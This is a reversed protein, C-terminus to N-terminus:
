AAVFTTGNYKWYRVAGSGGFLTIARVEKLNRPTSSGSSVPPWVFINVSIPTGANNVVSGDRQFRAVWISHGTVTTTGNLHGIADTAFAINAYNPPNPKTVGTPIIDVRVDGAKDLPISKLLRDQENILSVPDPNREDIVKVANDTLDLELRFTRRRTVALQATETMLDMIKVAQDESRLVKRYNVIYPLSIASMIGIIGLVVLLEAMSFGRQGAFRRRHMVRVLQPVAM